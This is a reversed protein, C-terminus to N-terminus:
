LEVRVIVSDPWVGRDRARRLKERACLDRHVNAV